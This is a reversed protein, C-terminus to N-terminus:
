MYISYVKTCLFRLFISSRHLFFVYQQALPLTSLSIYLLLISFHFPLFSFFTYIRRYLYIYLHIYLKKNRPFLLLLLSTILIQDHLLTHTLTDTTIFHASNAAPVCARTQILYLSFYNCVFGVTVGFKWILHFQLM